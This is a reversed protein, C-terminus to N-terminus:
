GRSRVRKGPPAFTGAQQQQQIRQIIKQRNPYDHADLVAETDLAGMAFLKDAEQARAQRSTPLSSGANVWMQFKMPVEGSASPYYFHRAKLALPVQPQDKDGTISIIRPLTYNESILSAALDGSERLVGELNRLAKRVRVLGSEQQSDLAKEARRPPANGQVTQSYGSIDEMYQGYLRILDMIWQPMEPPRLWDAEAQTNKSVRQGPKNIIKTRTIGARSDEMFVPNGILEANYQLATLIRNLSLQIPKLHEVLSIGWFEGEDVLVYRCYPHRGHGFLSEAPEDMLVRSGSVVVCRWHDDIHEDGDKDTYLEHERLWGEYVTVGRDYLVARGTSNPMGWRPANGAVGAPNAMPARSQSYLEPREDVSGSEESTGELMSAAGPFRRDLEQLSMTRAEIIYNADDFSTAKPDVYMRFPDVRTIQADGLGSELSADWTTKTFGTGYTHADWLVREIEADTRRHTWIYEMCKEMDRALMSGLTYVLSGPDASPTFYLMPRQDTMWSILGDLIPFVKSATPSPMWPERWPSWMRNHVVQYNQRWMDVRRQRHTKAANFYNRIQGVRSLEKETMAM